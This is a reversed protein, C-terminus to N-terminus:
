NVNKWIISSMITKCISTSSSTWSLNAETQSCHSVLMTSCKIYIIVRVAYCLSPSITKLMTQKDSYKNTQIVVLDDLHKDSLMMIGNCMGDCFKWPMMSPDFPLGLEFIATCAHVAPSKVDALTRNQLPPAGQRIVIFSNIFIIVSICHIAHAPIALWILM